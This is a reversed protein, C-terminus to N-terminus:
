GESGVEEGGFTKIKNWLGKITGSGKKQTSKTETTGGDVGPLKGIKCMNWKHSFTKYNSCDVGAQANFSVSLFSIVTTLFLIKKM